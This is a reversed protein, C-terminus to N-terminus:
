VYICIHVYMYKCITLGYTTVLMWYPVRGGGPTGSQLFLLMAQANGLIAGFCCCFYLKKMPNQKIWILVYKIELYLSIYELICWHAYYFGWEMKIKRLTNRINSIYFIKSNKNKLFGRLLNLTTSMCYLLVYQNLGKVGNLTSALVKAKLVLKCLIWSLLPM